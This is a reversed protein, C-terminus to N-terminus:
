INFLTDVVRALCALLRHVRRLEFNLLFPGSCADETDDSIPM